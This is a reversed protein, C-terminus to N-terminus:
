ESVSVVRDIRLTKINRIINPDIQVKPKLSRDVKEVKIVINEVKTFCNLVELLKQDYSCDSFTVTEVNPGIKNLADIMNEPLEESIEKFEIVRYRREFNQIEKFEDERSSSITLPLKNMVKLSNSIVEKWRMDIQLSTKLSKRDLFKFLHELVEDPLADFPSPDGLNVVKFINSTQNGM